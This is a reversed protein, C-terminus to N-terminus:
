QGQRSRRKSPGVRFRGWCGPIGRKRRCNNPSCSPTRALRNDLARQTTEVRSRCRPKAVCVIISRRVTCGGEILAAALARASRSLRIPTRWAGFFPRRRTKTLDAKVAAVGPFLSLRGKEPMRCNMKSSVAKTSLAFANMPLRSCASIPSISDGPSRGSPHRACTKHASVRGPSHM